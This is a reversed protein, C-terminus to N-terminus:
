PTVAPPPPAPPMNETPSFPPWDEVLLGMYATLRAGYATGLNIADQLGSHQKGTFLIVFWSLFAAISALISLAYNILIVPIALIYRFFVKVRSYTEQPGPAPLRIPYEPHEGTDFPPYVDTLYRTYGQLRTFYRVVGLNFDYLGQPYRTTVLLAFWAAITCFFGGIAWVIGVLLLPIAMILRFFTTLRSREEVYDVEYGIPYASM